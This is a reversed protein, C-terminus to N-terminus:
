ELCDSLRFDSVMPLETMRSACSVEQWKERSSLPQQIYQYIFACGYPSDLRRMAKWHPSQLVYENLQIAINAALPNGQALFDVAPKPTFWLQNLLDKAECSAIVITGPVQELRQINERVIQDGTLNPFVTQYYSDHVSFFASSEQWALAKEKGVDYFLVNWFDAGAETVILKYPRPEPQALLVNAIDLYFQRKLLADPSSQYANLASRKYQIAAGSGAIIILVILFLNRYRGSLTRPLLPALLVILLVTWCAYFGPVYLSHSLIIFVPFGVVFWVATLIESSQERWASISVVCLIYAWPLLFLIMGGRAILNAGLTRAIFQMSGFAYGSGFYYTHLIQFQFLAVLAALSAAPVAFACTRNFAPKWGESRIIQYIASIWLVAFIPAAYVAAATRQMVLLGLLLGCLAAWRRHKLRESLLWAICASGLLWTALSDKWYDAIGAYPGYVLGSTFLFAVTVIGLLLSRTRMFVYWITLFIFVAMFPMLVVVHGFRHVLMSPAFLVRLVVDLGDKLKFAQTLATGLGQTALTQHIQVASIRYGSSDPYYATNLHYQQALRVSIFGAFSALLAAIVVAILLPPITLRWARQLLTSHEDNLQLSADM